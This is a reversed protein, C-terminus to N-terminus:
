DDKNKKNLFKEKLKEINKQFGLKITKLDVLTEKFNNEIYEDFKADDLLPELKINKTDDITIIKKDVKIQNKLHLNGYVIIALPNELKMKEKFLKSDFKFFIAPEMNFARSYIMLNQLAMGCNAIASEKSIQLIDTEKTNCELVVIVKALILENLTSKAILEKLIKNKVIVFKFPDSNNFSYTNKTLNLIYRVKEFIESESKVDQDISIYEKPTLLEDIKM